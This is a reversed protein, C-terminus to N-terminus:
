RCRCRHRVDLLELVKVSGYGGRVGVIGAISPDDLARRLANARVGPRGAEFGDVAFVSDDFVPEFGLARLEAVGAHFEDLPFASAPAVVAVRDGPCLARPRRLRM